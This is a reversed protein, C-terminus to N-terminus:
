RPKIVFSYVGTNHLSMHNYNVNHSHSMPSDQGEHNIWKTQEHDDFICPKNAKVKQEKRRIVEDVKQKLIKGQEENQLQYCHLADAHIQDSAEKTERNEQNAVFALYIDVQWNGESLRQGSPNLHPPM